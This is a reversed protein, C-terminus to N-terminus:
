PESRLNTRFRPDAVVRHVGGQARPSCDEPARVRLLEKSSDLDSLRRAHGAAPVVGVVRAMREVRATEEVGATM